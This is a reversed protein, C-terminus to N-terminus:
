VALCLTVCSNPDFGSVRLAGCVATGYDITTMGVHHVWVTVLTMCQREVYHRGNYLLLCGGEVASSTM